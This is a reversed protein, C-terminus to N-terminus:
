KEAEPQLYMISLREVLESVNLIGSHYWTGHKRIALGLQLILENISPETCYKGLLRLSYYHQTYNPAPTINRTLYVELDTWSQAAWVSLTHGQSMYHYSIQNPSFYFSASREKWGDGVLEYFKGVKLQDEVFSAPQHGAENVLSKKSKAM